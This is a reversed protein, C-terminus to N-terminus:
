QKTDGMSLVAVLATKTFDHILDDWEDGTKVYRLENTIATATDIAKDTPNWGRGACDPCDFANNTRTRKNGETVRGNGDCTHCDEKWLVVLGAAERVTKMPELRLDYQGEYFWVEHDLAQKLASTMQDPMVDGGGEIVTLMLAM